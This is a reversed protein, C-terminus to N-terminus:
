SCLPEVGVVADWVGGDPSLRTNTGNDHHWIWVQTRRPDSSGVYVVDGFETVGAVGRVEFEEPSVAVGDIYLRRREEDPTDIITGSDLWKPVGPVLEVWAKDTKSYM